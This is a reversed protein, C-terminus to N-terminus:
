YENRFLEGEINKRFFLIFSHGINFYFRRTKLGGLKVLHRQRTQDWVTIDTLIWGAEQASEIITGHLNVYPIHEPMDRYDRVVWVNYSGPHTVIHLDEMVTKISRCYCEWDMNGFDREDSSYPKALERLSDRYINKGYQSGAFEKAVNNLLNSYPPSTLTLNISEPNLYRRMNLCSDEYINVRVQASADDESRDMDDPGDKSLRVYEPNIEFGGGNRGLMQAADLTTGVGLFPDLVTDGRSTYIRIMHKALSIPFAAGHFRRKTTIPGDYVNISRSSQTWESGSLDNLPTLKARIREPLRNYEKIKKVM